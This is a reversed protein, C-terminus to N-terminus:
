RRSPEVPEVAYVDYTEERVIEGEFHGVHKFRAPPVDRRTTVLLVARGSSSALRDATTVSRGFDPPQQQQNWVVFGGLRGSQAFFVDRALWAALPVGPLEPEVVIPVDPPYHDRIFAATDRSGSFKLRQDMASAYLGVALQVAALLGLMRKWLIGGDPRASTATMWCSAVFLLFYHGHHRVGGQYVIYSFAFLGGGGVAFAVFAARHERLALLVCAFLALGVLARVYPFPELLDRNWFEQQLPPVPALGRWVAGLSHLGANPDAALRPAVRFGADAPQRVFVLTASIGLAVIVAFWLARRNRIVHPQQAWTEWLAGAALGAAVIVGYISTMALLALTLAALPLRRRGAGAWLACFALLFLVGLSYSRSLTGYEFAVFYGFALSLTMWRPFPAWRLLIWASGAGVALNFVQMGVPSDTVRSILFLCFPWLGPHGEYRLNSILELPTASNRAIMWAQLEDRWMEHALLRMLGLVVWLGLAAM